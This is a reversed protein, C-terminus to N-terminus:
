RRRIRGSGGQWPLEDEFDCAAVAPHGRDWFGRVILSALEVMHAPEPEEDDRGFEVNVPWLLFDDDASEYTHVSQEARWVDAVPGKADTNERVELPIGCHDGYRIRPLSPPELDIGLEALVEAARDVDIGKISVRCFEYSM